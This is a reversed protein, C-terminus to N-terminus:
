PLKSLEETATPSGAASAKKLYERAKVVDKEIGEGDRYREGMRLLGYADGKAAADENSKLAADQAAKKKAEKAAKLSALEQDTPKPPAPPTFIEGFDLKHISRSAGLTTTYEYIGAPFAFLHKDGSIFDNEAVPYPFNAVFFESGHDDTGNPGYNSELTRPDGYLGMIRIGTKQVELVTGYFQVGKPYVYNTEGNIIRYPDRPVFQQQAHASVSIAMGLALINLIKM